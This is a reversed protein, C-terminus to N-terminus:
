WASPQDGQRFAGGIIILEPDLHKTSERHGHQHCLPGPSFTALSCTGERAAAAMRADVEGRMSTPLGRNIAEM